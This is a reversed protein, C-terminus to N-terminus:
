DRLGTPNSGWPMGVGQGLKSPLKGATLNRLQSFLFSCLQSQFCGRFGGLGAVALWCARSLVQSWSGEPQTPTPPVGPICFFSPLLLSLSSLLQM